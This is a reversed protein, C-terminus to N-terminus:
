FSMTMSLKIFKSRQKIITIKFNKITQNLVSELSEKFYEFRGGTLIVIEISNNTFPM